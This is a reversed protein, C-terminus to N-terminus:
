YKLFYNAHNETTGKYDNKLLMFDINEIKNIAVNKEACACIFGACDAVELSGLAFIIKSPILLFYRENLVM